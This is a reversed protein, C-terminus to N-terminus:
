DVVVVGVVRRVVGLGGSMVGGVREMVRWVLVREMLNRRRVIM